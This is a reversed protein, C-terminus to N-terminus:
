VKLVKCTFPPLCGLPFEPSSLPPTASNDSHLWPIHSSGRAVLHRVCFAILPRVLAGVGGVERTLNTASIYVFSLVLRLLRLTLHQAVPATESKRSVTEVLRLPSFCDRFLYGRM